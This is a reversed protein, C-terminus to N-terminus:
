SHSPLKLHPHSPPLCHQHCFTLSFSSIFLFGFFNLLEAKEDLLMGGDEGSREQNMKKSQIYNFDEMAKKNM